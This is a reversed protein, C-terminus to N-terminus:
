VVGDFWGDTVAKCWQASTAITLKRAADLGPWFTLTLLNSGADTEYIELAEIRRTEPDFIAQVHADETVCIDLRYLRKTVTELLHDLHSCDTDEKISWSGDPCYRGTGGNPDPQDFDIKGGGELMLSQMVNDINEITM